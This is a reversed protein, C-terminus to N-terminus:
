ADGITKIKELRREATLDDFDSFIKHLFGVPADPGLRAARPAFDVIGAFLLMVAPLGDAIVEGTREKLRFAIEDPLLNALLTEFRDFERSM